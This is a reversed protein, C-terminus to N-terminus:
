PKEEDAFLECLKKMKSGNPEAAQEIIFLKGSGEEGCARVLQEVAREVDNRSVSDSGFVNEANILGELIIERSLVFDLTVTGMIEGTKKDVNIKM